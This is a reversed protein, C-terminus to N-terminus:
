MTTSSANSCVAVVWERIEALAASRYPEVDSMFLWNHFADQHEHYAILNADNDEVLRDRLNRMGDVSVEAEGAMICTPPFNSFLGRSRELALSAPSLYANSALEAKPLSGRFADAAWDLTFVSNIFDSPLNRKLSSAADRDYTRAWDVAPSLMLLGGPRPLDHLQLRNLYMVLNVGLHGGASDGEVVINKPEFGLDHVLYRYGALADLLAAPFPNSVRLPAASSLRYELAFARKLLGDSNSLINLIIPTLLSKPSGSSGFYGGGHLSYLVHEGPAARQGHKGSSDREGHWYGSIRAPRVHNTAAATAIEGVIFEDTVPEVWVFGLEDATKADEEPDPPAPFIGIEFQLDVFVRLLRVLIARGFSWSRRPRTSPLLSTAIWFPLRVFLLSFAFYVLYVTKLPQTRFAFLM